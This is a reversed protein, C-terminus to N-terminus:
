YITQIEYGAARAGEELEERLGADLCEGSHWITVLPAWHNRNHDQQRRAELLMIRAHHATNYAEDLSADDLIDKLEEFYFQERRRNKLRKEIARNRIEEPSDWEDADRDANIEDWEALAQGIVASYYRIKYRLALQEIKIKTKM